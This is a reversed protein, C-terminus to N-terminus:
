SLESLFREFISCPGHSRVIRQEDAPKSEWFVVGRFRRRGDWSYDGSKSISIGVEWLGGGSMGGHSSPVGPLWLEVGADYYDFGEIWHTQTVGGFFARAVLEVDIRRKHDVSVKSFEGVLGYMAWFSNEIVPPNESLDALQQEFSLFSKYASITTLQPPPIELLALDPGWEEPGERDWITRASINALPIEVKARGGKKILLHISDAREAEHWVHAATLIYGKGDIKILTGSGILKPKPKGEHKRLALIPVFYHWLSNEAQDWVAM